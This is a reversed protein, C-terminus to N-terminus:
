DEGLARIAGLLLGHLERRDFLQIMNQAVFGPQVAKSAENWKSKLQNGLAITRTINSTVQPDSKARNVAMSDLAPRM